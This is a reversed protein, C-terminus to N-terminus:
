WLVSLIINAFRAIRMGSRLPPTQVHTIGTFGTLRSVCAPMRGGTGAPFWARWVLPRSTTRAYVPRGYVHHRRDALRATRLSVRRIPSHSNTQVCTFADDTNINKVERYHHDGDCPENIDRCDIINNIQVVSVEVNNLRGKWTFM